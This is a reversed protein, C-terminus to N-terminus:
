NIYKEKENIIKTNNDQTKNNINVDEELLCFAMEELLTATEISTHKLEDLKNLFIALRSNHSNTKNKLIEIELKLEDMEKNTEKTSEKILSKIEELSEKIKM